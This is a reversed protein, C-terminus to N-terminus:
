TTKKGGPTHTLKSALLTVYKFMYFINDRGWNDHKMHKLVYDWKDRFLKPVLLYYLFSLLSFWM